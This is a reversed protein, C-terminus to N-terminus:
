PNTNLKKRTPIKFEIEAIDVMTSLNLREELIVRIGGEGVNETHTNFVLLRDAFIASIKCVINVRPYLRKEITM